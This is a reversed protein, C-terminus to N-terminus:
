LAVIKCRNSNQASAYAEDKLKSGLFDAIPEINSGVRNSNRFKVKRKMTSRPRKARAHAERLVAKAQVLSTFPRWDNTAKQARIGLKPFEATPEDTFRYLSCEKGGAAIGGQRTKEIFGLVQLARLSKALTSSSRVGCHRLTSLTAEINGNNSGKMKRRLWCWLDRDTPALARWAHSDQLEWYLRSHGGRPDAFRIARGM